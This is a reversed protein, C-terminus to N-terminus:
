ITLLSNYNHIRFDEEYMEALQKFQGPELEDFLKKMNERKLHPNAVQINPFEGYEQLLGSEELLFLLEEALNELKLVIDPSFECTSCYRPLNCNPM